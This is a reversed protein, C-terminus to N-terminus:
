NNMKATRVSVDSEIEEMSWKVLDRVVMGAPVVQIIEQFASFYKLMYCNCVFFRRFCLVEKSLIEDCCVSIISMHILSDHSKCCTVNICM